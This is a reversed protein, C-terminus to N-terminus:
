ANNEEMSDEYDNMGVRYAIPDVAKLVQSPSYELTGFKIVQYIEDLLDDYEEETM